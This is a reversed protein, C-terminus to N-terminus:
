ALRAAVGRDAPNGLVGTRVGELIFLGRFDGIVLRRYSTCRGRPYIYM